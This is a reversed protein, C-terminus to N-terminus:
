GASRAVKEWLSFPERRTARERQSLTASPRTLAIERKVEPSAPRAARLGCLASKAHIAPFAAKASNTQDRPAYISNLRYAARHIRQNGHETCENEDARQGREPEVQPM